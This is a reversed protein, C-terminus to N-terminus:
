SVYRPNPELEDDHASYRGRVDYNKYWIVTFRDGRFRELVVEHPFRGDVRLVRNRNDFDQHTRKDM